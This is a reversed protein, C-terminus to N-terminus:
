NCNKDCDSKKKPKLLKWLLFIVAAAVLTYAIYSQM